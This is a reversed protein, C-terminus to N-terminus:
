KPRSHSAIKTQFMLDKRKGNQLFIRKAIEVTFLYFAVILALFFYYSLPLATFGLYPAAITFPLFVAACVIIIVSTLLYISPRSTFFPRFTRMALVILTASVVSEVFWGTRFEEVTSNLWLLLGFTAYDFLSSILGFILMFRRIFQVNWRMPKEIMEPDVIDTAITMEPFDTLLNTLLVQKPLLPLFSLFLSAGAMSFMNGFNASTSMFIYKLTNAFTNRGAIIGDKLVSLDKELLVIDAVEKAADAATEVSISVDAAHLATVDNIGDGIFGVVNGAKRLALLIREKQNPEVEAFISSQHAKHLLAQDSMAQIESGTLVKEKSIGILKAIHLAVLKSDGTIIKLEVGFKQLDQITKEINEKPPNSFLLFGLFIMNKEEISQLDTIEDGPRYGLGLVRFGQNCYESFQKMLSDTFTDIPVVNSLGMEIHTCCALIEKFAGKTIMVTSQDTKALISLRKRIFDYPVEDLKTWGNIELNGSRVIAQDIANNYGSQFIANVSAYLLAKDSKAGKVDYAGDLQIEGTTLTGTKDACLINMSGFNEISALRKVIVKKQAMYKAGHALNISIIAPLLQPTLGVSLALAFLMSEVASRGLFVNFAFIVILLVLTVEGLFYGFRRVGHEFDTEPLNAILRESIKGFESKKGTACAVAKATGSVVHTGLFLMNSRKSLPTDAALICRNKETYFTEGTLTAEDVYLDRSEIIYSDAPIVDGAKIEIIDGPVVEELPIESKNGGRIVDAKIQVIQLLKEMTKLAGREQFFTLLTSVVVIGFIICADTKDYLILSLFAAFLLMYILPSNVQAFLLRVVGRSKKVHLANKGELKLRQKAEAHSLGTAKDVSLTQLVMEESLQWFPNTM